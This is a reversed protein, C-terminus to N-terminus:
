GRRCLYIVRGDVIIETRKCLIMKVETPVVVMSDSFTQTEPIEPLRIEDLDPLYSSKVIVEGKREGEDWVLVKKDM